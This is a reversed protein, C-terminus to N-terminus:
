VVSIQRKLSKGPLTCTRNSKESRGANNKPKETVTIIGVSQSRNTGVGALILHDAGQCVTVINFIHIKIVFRLRATHFPFDPYYEQRKILPLYTYVKELRLQLRLLAIPISM